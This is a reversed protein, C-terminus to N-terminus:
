ERKRKPSKNELRGRVKKRQGGRGGRELKRAELAVGVCVCLDQTKCSPDVHSFLSEVDAERTRPERM